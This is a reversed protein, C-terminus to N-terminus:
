ALWRDFFDGLARLHRHALRAAHQLNRPMRNRQVARDAFRFVAVEAIEDLILLGVVGDLARRLLHELDLDLLHKLREGVALALDDLQAVADAIPIRIRQFFDASDELHRAFAHPLNFGLRDPLQLVRHPRSLQFPEQRAPYQPLTTFKWLSRLGYDFPSVAM